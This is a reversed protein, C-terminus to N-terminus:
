SGNTGSARYQRGRWGAGSRRVLRSETSSPLAALDVVRAASAAVAPGHNRIGALAITMTIADHRDLEVERFDLQQAATLGDSYRAAKM